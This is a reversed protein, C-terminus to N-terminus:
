SAVKESIQSMKIPGDYCSNIGGAVPIPINGETLATFISSHWSWSVRGGCQSPFPFAAESPSLVPDLSDM